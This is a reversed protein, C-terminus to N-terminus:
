YFEKEKRKINNQLWTMIFYIYYINLRYKYWQIKLVIMTTVSFFFQMSRLVLSIVELGTLPLNDMANPIIYTLGLKYIERGQWAIWSVELLLDVLM